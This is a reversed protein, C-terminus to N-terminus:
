RTKTLGKQKMPFALLWRTGTDLRYLIFEKGLYMSQTRPDRNMKGLIIRVSHDNMIAGAPMRSLSIRGPIFRYSYKGSCGCCCHGPKGSYVKDIEEFRIQPAKKFWYGKKM